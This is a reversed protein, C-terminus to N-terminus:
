TTADQGRQRLHERMLVPLALLIPPDVPKPARLSLTVEQSVRGHAVTIPGEASGRTAERYLLTEDDSVDQDLGIAFLSYRGDPLNRLRCAGPKELVTCAVPHGQPMSHRFAGVFVPGQHGDPAQVHGRVSDHEENAHRQGYIVPKRVRDIEQSAQRGIARFTRPSVGVLEGFRRTFTGLSAYGVEFCVDTVSMESEVLLRKAAQLRLGGFFQVPPVGTTQQFVRNFHFRSMIGVEAMEDLSFGEYLREHMAKIVREVARTHFVVTEQRREEPMM